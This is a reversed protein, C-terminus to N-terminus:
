EMVSQKTSLLSFGWVNKKEREYSKNWRKIRERDDVPSVDWQPSVVLIGYCSFMLLNFITSTLFHSRLGSALEVGLDKDFNTKERKNLFYNWLSLRM